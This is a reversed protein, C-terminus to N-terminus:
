GAGCTPRDLQTFGQNSGEKGVSTQVYVRGPLRPYTDFRSDTVWGVSASAVMSDRRARVCAGLFFDV